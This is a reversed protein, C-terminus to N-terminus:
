MGPYKGLFILVMDITDAVGHAIIPVALNRSTGLYIVGLFMGAIGEEIIGTIGQGAHAVGFVLSVAILSGIWARRSRNGLEAVRNMLYGRWVMEEGFAAFTWSYAVGAIVWKINGTLLRFNHLDPQKETLRVLLPQTALLQFTETLIGTAVGIAVTFRWNRYRAFGVSRWRARRLRLSIWALVFLYPTKSFYILHRRDALFILAVIVFEGLAMWKSQRWSASPRMSNSQRTDSTLTTAGSLSDDDM